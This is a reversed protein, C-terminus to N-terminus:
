LLLFKDEDKLIYDSLNNDHKLEIKNEILILKAKVADKKIGSFEEGILQYILLIADKVKMNYPIKFDFNKSIAPVQVNIFIKKM